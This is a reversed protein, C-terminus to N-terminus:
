SCPSRFFAILHCPLATSFAPSLGIPSSIRLVSFFYSFSAFSMMYGAGAVGRRAGFVLSGARRRTGKQQACRNGLPRVPIFGTAFRRAACGKTAEDSRRKGRRM